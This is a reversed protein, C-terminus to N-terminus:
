INRIMTLLQMCRSSIIETDSAHSSIDQNTSVVTGGYAILDDPNEAYCIVHPCASLLLMALKHMTDRKNSYSINNDENIDLIELLPYSRGNVDLSGLSVIFHNDILYSKGIIKWSSRTVLDGANVLMNELTYNGILIDSRLQQLNDSYPIFCLKEIDYFRIFYGVSKANKNNQDLNVKPRKLSILIEYDSPITHSSMIHLTEEIQKITSQITLFSADPNAFSYLLSM